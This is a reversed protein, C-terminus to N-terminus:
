LKGATLRLDLRSARDATHFLQHTAARFDTAKATHINMFTQPNRDVLPFWSSQVQVMLRHGARFTHCTDPLTFRVLAPEGPKFPEPKEFSNRFKGRMVEARVLSQYGGMKVGAPNPEPDQANEPFVDVLKVVVDLDTGTTSVWLSAEVPGAVTVDADLTPTSYVLVDPRRAAFRQDATMYEHDLEGSPKGTYPVPKAPDSLWADFPADGARPAASSLGGGAHLYLAHPKADAPPWAAYKRWVNTGTEFIWAEPGPAVKKGKLHKQFFPYEINQRYFLATKQGFAVDGLHDGDNRAWGGHSWPGMVLTNDAGPAKEFARYTELSGWLDEADFWGGVTMVAVKPNRYHPRPDRAQWFADRTDHALIENWFAIDNKMYKANANSLPGMELFFAYVDAVDREFDWTIKPTPAPRPKGFNVYFDFSDALFLAGNHHFDDGLFWETVPAQPSVAKLAPHSDIAAQAAYFGPYSIGWMGVKGNNHPVNKVLFDITDWADTAEDTGKRDTARPRVDAFSGESMMRGRVDQQALIFGDRVFAVSPAFKRIARANDKSPYNDIGYPAVGYPTRLLMTPWTRTTDKPVYVVTYLRVGDRMPIRYEYKTYWERMARAIEAPEDRLEGPVLPLEDAVQPPAAGAGTAPGAAAAARPHACGLFAACSAGYLSATLPLVSGWSLRSGSLFAFSFRSTARM